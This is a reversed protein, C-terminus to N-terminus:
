STAPTRAGRDAAYRAAEFPGFELGEAEGAALGGAADTARV